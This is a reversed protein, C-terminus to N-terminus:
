SRGLRARVRVRRRLRRVWRTPSEPFLLVLLLAAGVAAILIEAIM